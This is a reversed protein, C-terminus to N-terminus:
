DKTFFEKIRAAARRGKETKTFFLYGGGSMMLLGILAILLYLNQGTKITEWISPKKQVTKKKEPTPTPTPTVKKTVKKKITKKKSPTDPEDPTDPTDPEDPEPPIITISQGKDTIDSHEAIIKDGYTLTEFVVLTGDQFDATDITFIVEVRGNPGEPIFKTQSKITHGYKDKLEGGDTVAGSEDVKQVHLVGNMVYELNPILNEYTVTDTINVVTSGDKPVQYEKAGDKVAASTRIKIFHISQEEDTIDAHAAFKISDRSLDEFAVVTKGELESADFKFTLDISGNPETATFVASATVPKGTVDTLEGGDVIKKNGEEDTVTNQIHLTGDVTYERGPILNTYQVADTITVTKDEGTPVYTEHLEDETLATTHVDVFHISQGEDTIDAHVAFTKGDRAMSEFVVITKNMLESADFVFPMDVTGCAEKPTFTLKSTVDNGKKDKVTGGDTINGEEDVDQIHITGSVTYEVGPVLNEYSVTDTIIIKNDGEPDLQLEQLGDETRATTGIDVFHISQGEDGIEEHTAVVISGLSLREFAVTTLLEVEIKNETKEEPESSAEPAETVDAGETAKPEETVAPTETAEPAETTEAAETAEPAETTEVKDEAEEVAKKYRSLISADFTFMMDVYGNKESPIFTLDGTVKSTATPDEEKDTDAKDEDKKDTDATEADETKEDEAGDVADEAKKDKLLTGIIPNGETDTTIGADIVNGEEDVSKLHLTGDLTYELGPVVNEYKVRDTITLMNDEETIQYEHIGQDTLATTGIHPVQVAQDDDKIDAHTGILVWEDKDAKRGYLNQFVVIDKGGLESADVGKFTVTQDSSSGEWTTEATLTEEKIEAKADKDESDEVEAEVTRTIVGEDEGDANRVHLEGVLKYQYGDLINTVKVSDTIAQDKAEAIQKTGDAASAAVTDLDPYHVTQPEDNIDAHVAYEINKREITEFAVVTEGKLNVGSFKFVVDVTGKTNPAVFDVEATIKKGDGDKVPEGTAKNMLEGTVTYKKGVDLGEYSVTDVLEVIDETGYDMHDLDGTLTTHIDIVKVRQEEDGVDDHSAVLQGAENYIYEYCVLTRGGYPTTDLNFAINRIAIKGSMTFKTTTETVKKEATKGDESVLWLESKMTYKGPQFGTITVMDKLDVDPANPITKATDDFSLYTDMTVQTNFVTGYDLNVGNGDHNSTYRHLTVHFTILDYGENNDCRLEEVLYRDYPFARLDNQPYYNGDNVSYYARGSSDKKWVPKTESKSGLGVFWTGAESDLKSSDAVYWNGDKDIKLAGNSIPSDPDNANTNQTHDRYGSQQADIEEYNTSASGWTGNEDTVIVHKEGTTLSTIVFPINEMRDQTGDDKKQFHFDERIPQNGITNGIKSQKHNNANHDGENTLDVIQGDSRIEIRTKWTRSKTDFLMGTGTSIEYIDYTGYPLVRDGTYAAFITRGNWTMKETSMRFCVAEAQNSTYRNFRDTPKVLDRAATNASPYTVGNVYVSHLSQNVIEFTSDELTTEGLEIYQGLERTVKGVIVGGRMVPNEVHNPHEIYSHVQGHERISFTKTWQKGNKTLLYGKPAKTEKVEYTGYPLYYQSTTAVYQNYQDSWVTPLICVEGGVPVVRPTNGSYVIVSRESRNYITFEAGSLEADGQAESVDWDSDVKGIVVGGRKVPDACQNSALPYLNTPTISVTTTFAPKNYGVPPTIEEIGYTGIPYIKEGGGGTHALYVDRSANEDPNYHTSGKPCFVTKLTTIQDGVNYWTGNVYVPYKSQNTIKYVTNDLRADGQPESPNSNADVQQKVKVRDEDVKMVAFGGRYIPNANAYAQANGASNQVNYSVVQGDYDISFTARWAANQYEPSSAREVIEYTGYPLAKGTTQAKYVTRGNETGKVTTISKVIADKNWVHGDVIVPQNLVSRNYIDYVVGELTGDGQPTDLGKNTDFNDKDVKYVAVDGKWVTDVNVYPFNGSNISAQAIASSTLYTYIPNNNADFKVTVAYANPHGDLGITVGMGNTGSVEQVVYTGGPWQKVGADDVYPWPDNGDEVQPSTGFDIRGNADTAFTAEDLLDFEDIGDVSTYVKNYYKLKFQIGSLNVNGIGTGATLYTNGIKIQKSMTLPRAKVSTDGYKGAEGDLDNGMICEKDKNQVIHVKKPNPNYLLGTGAVSSEVERVWVDMETNSGMDITISESEGYEDLTVQANPKVQDSDNVWNAQTSCQSDLYINYKIDKYKYAGNDMCVQDWDAFKVVHLGGDNDEVGEYNVKFIGVGTQTNHQPTIIGIYAQQKVKDVGVIRVAIKTFPANNATLDVSESFHGCAMALKTEGSLGSFTMKTGKLAWKENKNVHLEFPWPTQSWDNRASIGDKGLIQSLISTSKKLAKITGLPDSGTQRRCNYLALRTGNATGYRIDVGNVWKYAGVSPGDGTFKVDCITPVKAESWDGASAASATISLDVASLVDAAKDALSESVIVKINDITSAAKYVILTGEEEDYSWVNKDAEYEFDNIIVSQIMKSTVDDTKDTLQLETRPNIYSMHGVGTVSDVGKVNSEITVDVDLTAKKIDTVTYMLQLSTQGLVQDGESKGKLNEDEEYHSALEKNYYSYTKPVYVLKTDDDYIIDDLVVGCSDAYAAVYDTVSAYDMKRSVRGVYYDASESLSYLYVYDDFSSIYADINDSLGDGDKDTKWLKDFTADPLQSGDVYMHQVRIQDVVKLDDKNGKGALSSDANNLVFDNVSPVSQEEDAKVELNLSGGTLTEEGLETDTTQENTKDQKDGTTKDKGFFFLCGAVIGIVAIVALVILIQKKRKQM